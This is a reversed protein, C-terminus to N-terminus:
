EAGSGVISYEVKTHADTEDVGHFSSAVACGPISPAPISLRRLRRQLPEDTRAYAATYLRGHSHVSIVHSDFHICAIRLVKFWVKREVQLNHIEDITLFAVRVNSCSSPEQTIYLLASIQICSLGLSAATAM